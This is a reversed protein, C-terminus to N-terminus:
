AVVIDDIDVAMISRATWVWTSRVRALGVSRRVTSVVMEVLIEAWKKGSHELSYLARGLRVINGPMDGCWGPLKM